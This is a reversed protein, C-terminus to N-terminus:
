VLSLAQLISKIANLLYTFRTLGYNAYLAGVTIKKAYRGFKIPIDLIGGEPRTYYFYIIPTIAFIVIVINNLSVLPLMTSKLNVITSGATGRLNLGLGVGVMFAVPYMNLWVTQKSINGLTLLGLLLPIIVLLNGGILPLIANNRIFVIALAIYHASTFAVFTRTAFRFWINNKVLFSWIGFIFFLTLFSSIFDM